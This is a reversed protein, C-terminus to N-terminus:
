FKYIIKLQINRGMDHSFFRFRNNYDKYLTNLLNDITTYLTINQKYISFDFYSSIQFLHYANPTIEELKPLYRKDLPFEYEVTYRNQKAVYKHQFTVSMNKVWHNFHHNWSIEQVFSTPPINPFYQGDKLSKAYIVSLQNYYKFDKTIQYSLEIDGGLFLAQEQQYRYVPYEGSFLTISEQTPRSFIYNDIRQIYFDAYINWKKPTFHVSSIWKYGREATLNKDGIEFKGAGHHLGYSYLESVQPARWALGIESKLLTNKSLSYSTGAHYTFNHFTNRDGYLEGLYNFGKSDINKYDYRLGLEAAWSNSSYKQISYVGVALSAFNPILGVSATGEQNTNSQLTLNTGTETEFYSSWKKDLNLDLSHSQLKMDVSPIADRGLRRRSFEKRHNLQWAYQLSIKGFVNDKYFAKVKAMDHSVDQSPAVINRSFDTIYYPIGESYLRYFDDLNGTHASSFVGLKTNFRSYLFEIGSHHFDWGLHSLFNYERMATNNLYYNASHIDGGNKASTYVQWAFHPYKSLSGHMNLSSSFVRGNSNFSGFVRGGVPTNYPLKGASVLVVGGLADAGYKIADAGKIVVISQAMSPDIEPAHDAGWQQSELKIDNAFISIRNGQMGHIIPKAITGGSQLMSVGSVSSLVKALSQESSKDLISQDVQQFVQNMNRTKMRAQLEVQSLLETQEKMLIITKKKFDSITQNVSEYGLFSIDVHISKRSSVDFTVEGSTDSIFFHKNYSVVAGVLPTKTRADLIQLIIRNTQGFAFCAFFLPLLTGIKLKIM